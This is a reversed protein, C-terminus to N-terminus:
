PAATLPRFDYLKWRGDERAMTLDLLGASTASQGGARELQFQAFVVVDARDGTISRVGINLVTATQRLQQQTAAPRVASDFVPFFQALFPGTGLNRAADASDDLKTWDYSLAQEVVQRSAGVVEATAAADVVATNAIPGDTYAARGGLFALTAVTAAVLVVVTLAVPFAVRTRTFRRTRAGIAKTARGARGRPRDDGDLARAARGASPTPRRKTREGRGTPRPRATRTPASTVTSSDAATSADDRTRAPTGTTAAQTDPAATDPAATDPAATDSRGARDTGATGTVSAPHATGTDAPADAISAQPGTEPHDAPTSPAVAPPASSTTTDDAPADPSEPRRPDRLGAVRPRRSSATPTRPRPPM